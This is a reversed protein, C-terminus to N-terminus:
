GPPSASMGFGMQLLLALLFPCAGMGMRLFSGGVTSSM